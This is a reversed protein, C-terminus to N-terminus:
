HSYFRDTGAPAELASSFEGLSPYRADAGLLLTNAFNMRIENLKQTGDSDRFTHGGFPAYRSIQFLANVTETPDIDIPPKDVEM